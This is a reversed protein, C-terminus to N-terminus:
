VFSEQATVAPAGKPEYVDTWSNATSKDLIAGVDHGAQKFKLLEAIKLDRARATMAGGKKKARM